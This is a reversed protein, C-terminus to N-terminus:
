PRPVLMPVSASLSRRRNVDTLVLAVGPVDFSVKVGGVDKFAPLPVRESGRDSVRYLGDVGAAVIADKTATVGFFAVPSDLTKGAFKQSFNQSLLTRVEEGCVEVLSGHSLFHVLGIAAVVCGPKWPIAAVGNVPDCEANLTGECLDGTPRDILTVTGTRLNARVLGGGFEGRNIGVYLNDGEVHVNATLGDPLPSALRLKQVTGDRPVLMVETTIITVGNRCDLAVFDSSAEFSMEAVWQDGVRTRLTWNSKGQTLAAVHGDKVCIDLSPQPLTENRRADETPAVSFVAGSDSRMWLRQDAFVARTIFSDQGPRMPEVPTTPTAGAFLAALATVAAVNM